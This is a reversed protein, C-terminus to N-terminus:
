KFAVFLLKHGSISHNAVVMKLVDGSNIPFCVSGGRERPVFSQSDAVQDNNISFHVYFNDSLGTSLDNSYMGSAIIFGTENMTFSYTGIEKAGSSLLTRTSYRFSKANLEIM